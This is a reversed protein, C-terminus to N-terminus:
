NAMPQENFFLRHDGSLVHIVGTTTIIGSTQCDFSRDRQNQPISNPDLEDSDLTGIVKTFNVYDVYDLFDPYAFVRRLRIRFRVSDQPGLKSVFYAGETTLNERTIPGEFLYMKLSDRLEQAPISDISFAINEDQVEIIKQQKKASVYDAVGWNTTVFFTVNGNVEDKMGAHDIIRVLSDFKPHSRLFDYTTMNVFENSPGGDNRYGDKKCAALLLVSGLAVWLINIFKKM